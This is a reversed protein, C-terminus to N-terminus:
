KTVIIKRGDVKFGVEGTLSLIELTSSLPTNPPIDINFHYYIDAQYTIEVNYLRQIQDMVKEIPADTLKIEKSKWAITESINAKELISFQGSKNFAVQQGPKVMQRRNDKILEVSGEVLTTTVPKNMYATINFKTGTVYVKIGNVYVIFPIKNAGDASWKPQVEFYAEGSLSVIREKEDFHMPFSLSSSANLWVITGDALRIKWQGNHPTKISNLTDVNQTPFQNNNETKLDAQISRVELQGDNEKKFQAVLGNVAKDLDTVKNLLYLTAKNGIPLIDDLEKAYSKQQISDKAPIDVLQVDKNRSVFKLLWLGALLFLVILGLSISYRKKWVFTPRILKEKIVYEKKFIKWGAKKNVSYISRMKKSVYAKNNLRNYLERNQESGCLWANLEDQEEETLPSTLKKAIIKIIRNNTEL